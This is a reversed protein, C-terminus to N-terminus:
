LHFLLPSYEAHIFPPPRDTLLPNSRDHFFFTFDLPIVAVNNHDGENQFAQFVPPSEKSDDQNMLQIWGLGQSGYITNIKQLVSHLIKKHDSLLEPSAQKFILALIFILIPFVQIMAQKQDEM